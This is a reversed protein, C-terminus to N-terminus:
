PSRRRKWGNKALKYIISNVLRGNIWCREHNPWIQRSLETGDSLMIDEYRPYMVGFGLPLLARIM